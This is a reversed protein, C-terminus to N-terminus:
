FDDDALEGGPVSVDFVNLLTAISTYCGITCALEALGEEGFQERAVRYTTVPMPGGRLLLSVVDFALNAEEDLSRPREGVALAAVEAPTLGITLAVREHAYLEYISAFRAGTLLITIERVQPSLASQDALAKFVDWVPIGLKPFHLLINFPGILAGDARTTVFSQLHASISDQLTKYLVHQQADLQQPPLNKLRM